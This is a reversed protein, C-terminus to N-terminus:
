YAISIIFQLATTYVRHCPRACGAYTGQWFVGM